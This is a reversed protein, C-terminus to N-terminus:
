KPKAHQITLTKLQDVATGLWKHFAEAVELPMVIETEVERVIGEKGERRGVIEEGPIAHGNADLTVKHVTLKPIAARENFFSIQIAGKPSVGGAVGDAHIVRFFNSKVFHFQLESTTKESDPMLM